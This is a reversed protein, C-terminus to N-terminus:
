SPRNSSNYWSCILRKLGDSLPPDPVLAEGSSDVLITVLTVAWGLIVKPLGSLSSSDWAVWRGGLSTRATDGWLARGPIRVLLSSCLWVTSLDGLSEPSTKSMQLMIVQCSSSNLDGNLVAINLDLIYFILHPHRWESTTGVAVM